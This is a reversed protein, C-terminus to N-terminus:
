TICEDSEGQCTGCGRGDCQTLCDQRERGEVPVADVSLCHLVLYSSQFSQFDSRHIIHIGQFRDLVDRRAHEQARELHLKGM